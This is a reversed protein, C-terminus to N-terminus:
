SFCYTTRLPRHSREKRLRCDFDVWTHPQPVRARRVVQVLHGRIGSAGDVQGPVFQFSIPVLNPDYDILQM